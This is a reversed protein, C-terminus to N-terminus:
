IIGTRGDLYAQGFIYTLIPIFLDISFLGPTKLSNSTFTSDVKKLLDNGNYQRRALVHFDSLDLYGEKIKVPSQFEHSVENAIKELFDSEFYGFSVLTIHQLTM